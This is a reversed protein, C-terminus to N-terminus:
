SAKAGVVISRKSRKGPVKRGNLRWAIVSLAYQWRRNGTARSIGFRWCIAKWPTLEARSWVLKVDDPDLWRLWELAEEMRTITSASPPPLRMARPEQGVRDAFETFMAPWTNFYGGIRVPPLRRMVHAADELRTEVAEITWNDM